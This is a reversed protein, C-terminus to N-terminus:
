QTSRIFQSTSNIFHRTADLLKSGSAMAQRLVQVFSAVATEPRQECGYVIEFHERIQRESALVIKQRSMFLAMEFFIRVHKRLQRFTAVCVEVFRESMGSKSVFDFFHLDLHLHQTALIQSYDVHFVKGTRTVMINYSNERDGLGWLWAVVTCCAMSEVFESVLDKVKAEPNNVMLFTRVDSNNDKIISWSTEADVIEVLGRGTDLPLVKYTLLKWPLLCNCISMVEMMLADKRVDETKFLISASKGDKDEWRVLMPKTYSTLIKTSVRVPRLEPCTPLRVVVGPKGSFCMEMSDMEDLLPRGVWSGVTERVAVQNLSQTVGAWWLVKRPMRLAATQLVGLLPHQQRECAQHNGLMELWLFYFRRLSVPPVLRIAGTLLKLNSQIHVLSHPWKLKSQGRIVSDVTCESVRSSIKDLQDTYRRPRSLSSERLRVREPAWTLALDLPLSGMQLLQDDPRRLSVKARGFPDRHADIADKWAKCVLSLSGMDAPELFALTQQQLPFVPRHDLGDQCPKCVLIGERKFWGKHELLPVGAVRAPHLEDVCRICVVYGCVRCHHKREFFSFATKCLSCKTFHADNQWKPKM